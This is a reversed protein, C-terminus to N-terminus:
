AKVFKRRILFAALGLLALGLTGPEPIVNLTGTGSLWDADAGTYEGAAVYSGDVKVYVEDSQSLTRLDLIANSGTISITTNKAFVNNAYLQVSLRGEIDVTDGLGFSSSVAKGEGDYQASSYARILGSGTSETGRLITGGLYDNAGHIEIRRAIDTSTNAHIYTLHGDGTITGRIFHEKPTDVRITLDDDLQFIPSNNNNFTRWNGTRNFLAGTTGLTNEAGNNDWIIKDLGYMNISAGYYLFQGLTVESITYFRFDSDGTPGTTRQAVDGVANPLDRASETTWNEALIPTIAQGQLLAM